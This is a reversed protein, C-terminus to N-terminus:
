NFVKTLTVLLLSFTKRVLDINYVILKLLQEKEQFEKLRSNISSGYKRKFSSNGSESNSRQHYECEDFDNNAKRRYIGHITGKDSHGRATQSYNRVPILPKIGNHYAFKFNKNADYAKDAYIITISIGLQQLEQILPLFDLNDHQKNSHTDANVIIKTKVDIVISTKVFGKVYIKKIRRLYHHSPNALSIGTSDISLKGSNNNMLRATAHLVKRILLKDTRKLFYFLTSYNPIKSYGLSRQVNNSKIFSIIERYSLDLKEKMIILYWHYYNSYIKNSFKSNHKSIRAEAFVKECFAYFPNYVILAINNM